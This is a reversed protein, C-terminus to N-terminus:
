AKIALIAKYATDSNQLVTSDAEYNMQAQVLSTMQAGININPYLVDGKNNALPNGPDSTLVGQGSGLAIASIQVGNGAPSTSPAPVAVIQQERYVPKGPTTADNANAVNGGITDIWTQDVGLGTGAIDIAPFMSV